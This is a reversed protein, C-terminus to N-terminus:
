SFGRTMYTWLVCALAVLLVAIIVRALQVAWFIKPRGEEEWSAGYRCYTLLVGAGWVLAVLAWFQIIRDYVDSGWTANPNYLMATFAIAIALCCTTLIILRSRLMLWARGKEGMGERSNSDREM